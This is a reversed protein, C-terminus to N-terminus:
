FINLMESVPSSIRIKVFITENEFENELSLFKSFPRLAWPTGSTSFHLELIDCLLCRAKWVANSSFFIHDTSISARDGFLLWQKEFWRAVSKHKSFTWIRSHTASDSLCSAKRWHHWAWFLFLLPQRCLAYGKLYFYNAQSSKLPNSFEPIM